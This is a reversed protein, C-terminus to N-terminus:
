KIATLSSSIKGSLADRKLVLDFVKSGSKLGSIKLYNMRSPLEPHDIQIKGNKLTIGLISHTMEIVAGAAWAQPVCSVNYPVPSPFEKREFGCFLEPLRADSYTSVSEILSSALMAAEKKKGYRCLGEIIIGNDHPWISGDHYSIPNYRLEKSSLTRIGWGSYMDNKLLREAVAQAIDEDLIKSYLLQGANSSVVDCPKKTGDLALAIIKEDALWFRNRFEHKLQKANQELRASTEAHGLRSAIRAIGTYADYLYGQVECCAIPATALQGDKHMISDGSDKWGQNSLAAGEKGGYYLFGNTKETSIQLYSLAAQIESWHTKALSTDGTADTYRSILLLWLPTADVTGYYPIFAIERARAMEGLRLEHMIRGPEEETFPDHKKGQYASLVNIVERALEPYFPLTQLASICQDRGFACAYWPLGAAICPGKPTTQQLLYLDRWSQEYMVNLLAWDSQLAPVKKKWDLYASDAQKKAVAYNRHFRQGARTNSTDIRFELTQKGFAPLKLRYSLENKDWNDPKNKATIFLDRQVQDLGSYHFAAIDRDSQWEHKLDESTAGKSTRQAAGRVEFMDKFDASYKLSLDLFLEKASFNRIELKESLGDLVVIDRQILLEDGISYLFSGAYADQTFSKLLNAPKGNVLMQWLSLFRTDNEYLGYPSGEADIIQGSPDLVLMSNGNKLVARPSATSLKAETKLIKSTDSNSALEAFVPCISSLHLLSILSFFLCCLKEQM